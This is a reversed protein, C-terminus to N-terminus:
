AFGGGEFTVSGGQAVSYCFDEEVGELGVGIFGPDLDVHFVFGVAVAEAPDVEFKAVIADAERRFGGATDRFGEKGGSVDAEAEAEDNAPFDGFSVGPFDLNERGM